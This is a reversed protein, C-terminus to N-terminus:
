PVVEWTGPVYVDTVLSDLSPFPDNIAQEAAHEVEERIREEIAATESAQCIGEALLWGRYRDIPDKKRWEDIEEQSRYHSSEGDFHGGIRYTKAEILSPGEGSRARGAAAEVAEYVAEVDNGDVVVGPMGYGAARSAIDEIAVANSIPMTEGYQNNECLYVVPLQWVAALNLGEHFSGTNSAGDGFFCLVLGGKMRGMRPSRPPPSMQAALAAGAAVPIGSGVIGHTCLVGLEPIGFHMPGGKGSSYGTARGMFEAFLKRLDAGQAVLHGGGRHTSVICDGEGLVACAATAVAEQGIYPHMRGPTLGRRSLEITKEEFRRIRVMLEYMRLREAKSLSM